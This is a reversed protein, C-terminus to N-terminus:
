LFASILTIGGALEYAGRNFDGTIAITMGNEDDFVKGSGGDSGNQQMQWKIIPTANVFKEGIVFIKGDNMQVLLGIGCCCGAQDLMSMFNTLTNSLQPLMAKVEHVYKVSCGKVTQKATYEAEKNQFNVQFMKAGGIVTAGPRLAVVSYAAGAVTQTFDFDSPDFIWISSVGGSVGGCPRTYSTITVCTM